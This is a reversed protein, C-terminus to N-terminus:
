APPPQLATPGAPPTRPARRRVWIGLPVLVLALAVAFPLVAGLGTLLVGVSTTFATWGASLGALFGTDDGPEELVDADTSLRVEVPSLAVADDLAALQTQLAELDAQRRSLEAELTVVDGLKTARTMLARVRDVSAQMTKVRSETDVYQATVDETSTNRSHVEGLESLRDLTTDLAATPVSITITSFGGTGPLDPESSIAEALVIGDATAAIARVRTAAADVDTVTLSIDARRALKRDAVASAVASADTGEAAAGAPLKEAEEAVAGGSTDGAEARSQSAAAEPASDSAADPASDSASDSGGGIGCGGLATVGVALALGAATALRHVPRVPTRM